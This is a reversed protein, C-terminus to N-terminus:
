HMAMREGALFREVVTAESFLRYMATSLRWSRNDLGLTGLAEAVGRFAADMLNKQFLNMAIVPMGELPALALGDRCSVADISTISRCLLPRVGHIMCCGSDDLFACPERVYLREEDDLWATRLHLEALREQLAVRRDPDFRRRLYWAIAIAEPFLIAVNLLCCTGCGARCAVQRLQKRDAFRALDREAAVTLLHMKGAIDASARATRLLTGTAREFKCTYDDFDFAKAM